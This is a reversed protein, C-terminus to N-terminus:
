ICQSVGVMLEPGSPNIRDACDLLGFDAELGSVELFSQMFNQPLSADPNETEKFYKM